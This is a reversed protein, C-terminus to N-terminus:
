CEIKKVIKSYKYYTITMSKRRAYKLLDEGSCVTRLKVTQKEEGYCEITVALWKNKVFDGLEGHKWPADFPLFFALLSEKYRLQYYHMKMTKLGVFLDIVFLVVHWLNYMFLIGLIVSCIWERRM